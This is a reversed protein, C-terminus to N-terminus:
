RLIDRRIGADAWEDDNWGYDFTVETGKPIARLARVVLRDNSVDFAANPDDGHNIFSTFGMGIVYHRGDDTQFLYHRLFSTLLDDADAAPVLLVPATELIEGKRVPKLTFVGRGKGPSRRVELKETAKFREKRM